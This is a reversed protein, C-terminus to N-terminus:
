VQKVSKKRVKENRVKRLINESQFYRDIFIYVHLEDDRSEILM